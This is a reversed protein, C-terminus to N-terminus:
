LLVGSAQSVLLEQSEPLTNNDLQERLSLLFRHLEAMQMGRDQMWREEEPGLTDETRLLELDSGLERYYNLLRRALETHGREELRVIIKEHDDLNGLAYTGPAEEEQMTEESPEAPVANDYYLAYALPVPLVQGEGDNLEREPSFVMKRAEAADAARSFVWSVYQMPSYFARDLGNQELSAWVNLQQQHERLDLVTRLIERDESLDLLFGNDGKRSVVPHATDAGTKRQVLFRFYDVALQECGINKTYRTVLVKRVTEFHKYTKYNKYRKRFNSQEQMLWARFEMLDLVATIDIAEGDSRELQYHQRILYRIQYFLLDYDGALMGTNDPKLRGSPLQEIAEDSVQGLCSYTITPELMWMGRMLYQQVQEPQSDLRLMESADEPVRASRRMGSEALTSKNKKSGEPSFIQPLAAGKREKRKEKLLPDTVPSKAQLGAIEGTSPRNRRDVSGEERAALGAIEGTSPRNRRDIESAQVTNGSLELAQLLRDAHVEFHGQTGKFDHSIIQRDELVAAAKRVRHRGMPIEEIAQQQTKMAIFDSGTNALHELLYCLLLGADAGFEKILGFYVTYQGERGQRWQVQEMPNRMM